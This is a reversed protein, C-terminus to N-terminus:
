DLIVMNSKLIVKSRIIDYEDILGCYGHIKDDIQYHKLIENWTDISNDIFRFPNQVIIKGCKGLLAHALGAIKKKRDFLCVVICSGIGLSEIIIPKNAVKYEAIKVTYKDLM